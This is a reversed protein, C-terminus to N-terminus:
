TCAGPNASISAALSYGPVKASLTPNSAAAGSTGSPGGGGPVAGADKAPAGRWSTSGPHTRGCVRSWRFYFPIRL